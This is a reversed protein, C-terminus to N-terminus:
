PSVPFNGIGELLSNLLSNGARQVTRSKAEATQSMRSVSSVQQRTKWKGYGLMAARITRVTRPQLRRSRRELDSLLARKIGGPIQM